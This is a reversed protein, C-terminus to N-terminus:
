GAGLSDAVGVVRGIGQAEDPHLQVLIQEAGPAGSRQEKGRVAAKAARSEIAAKIDVRDGLAAPQGSL